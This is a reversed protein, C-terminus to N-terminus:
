PEGALGGYEAIESVKQRGHVCKFLIGHGQDKRDSQKRAVLLHAARSEVNSSLRVVGLYLPAM